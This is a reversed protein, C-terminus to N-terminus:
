DTCKQATSARRAETLFISQPASGVDHPSSIRPPPPPPPAADRRSPPPPWVVVVAQNRPRGHRQQQHQRRDDRHHQGHQQQQQKRRRFVTSDSSSPATAPTPRPVSHTWIPPRGRRYCIKPPASRRICRRGCRGHRQCCRKRSGSRFIFFTSRAVFPETALDSRAVFKSFEQSRAVFILNRIIKLQPVPIILGLLLLFDTM